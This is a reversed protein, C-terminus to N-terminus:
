NSIEVNKIILARAKSNALTMIREKKKEKKKKRKKKKKRMPQNQINNSQKQITIYLFFNNLLPNIFRSILTHCCSGTRMWGKIEKAKLIIKRYFGQIETNYFLSM